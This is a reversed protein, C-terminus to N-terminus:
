GPVIKLHKKGKSPNIGTAAEEIHDGWWQLMVRRQEIYEARNYIGRIANQDVHALAAEIVDQPFEQENLTTSALSRLGHAVLRGKYGMRKIAMNASEKNIPERPHNRSPFVYERHQSIPKMIELISLMQDTLPVIHPRRKKMREAPIEWLKNDLDIEDWRTGAGEGPRVLTNLLWLIQCKVTIDNGAQELDALFKPLEGPKITPRNTVKPAQFAKGIGALRNADVLGTNTAFVMVENTWRCLKRVTELAKRDALPELLKITDPANLKHIPINGLSPLIHLEVAKTLRTRYSDSWVGDKTKLWKRYVVEFTNSHAQKGSAEQEIRSDRPDVNQILLSQYEQRFDRAKGLSLKPYQGLSINSRKKTFPKFYNYLWLKTGNPKVRLYLGGGDALNYEKAKPRAQKVETNTLPKTSNAM